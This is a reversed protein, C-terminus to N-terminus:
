HRWGLPGPAPSATAKRHHHGRAEARKGANLGALQPRPGGAWKGLAPEHSSLTRLPRAPGRSSGSDPRLAELRACPAQAGWAAAGISGARAAAAGHARRVEGPPWSSSLRRCHLRLDSQRERGTNKCIQKFRVRARIEEASMRVRRPGASPFRWLFELELETSTLVNELLLGM